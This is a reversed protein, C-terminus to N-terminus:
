IGVIFVSKQPQQSWLNHRALPIVRNGLGPLCPGNQLNAQTYIGVLDIERCEFFCLAIEISSSRFPSRNIPFCSLDIGFGKGTLLQLHAEPTSFFLCADHDSHFCLMTVKRSVSRHCGAPPPRVLPDGEAKALSGGFILFVLSAETLGKNM